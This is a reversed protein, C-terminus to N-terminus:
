EPYECCVKIWQETRRWSEMSWSVIASDILNDDLLELGGRCTSTTESMPASGIPAAEKIVPERVVVDTSAGPLLDVWTDV